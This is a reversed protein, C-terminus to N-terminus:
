LADDTPPACYMWLPVEPFEAASMWSQEIIGTFLQNKGLSVTKQFCSYKWLMPTSMVCFVDM